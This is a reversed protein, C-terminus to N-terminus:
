QTRFINRLEKKGMKMIDLKFKLISLLFNNGGIEGLNQCAILSSHIANKSVELLNSWEQHDQLVKIGDTIKGEANIIECFKKYDKYDKQDKQDKLLQVTLDLLNRGEELIESDKKM